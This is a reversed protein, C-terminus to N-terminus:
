SSGGSITPIRHETFIEENWIKQAKGFMWLLTDSDSICIVSDRQVQGRKGDGSLPLIKFWGGNGQKQLNVVKDLQVEWITQLSGVDVDEGLFLSSKGM